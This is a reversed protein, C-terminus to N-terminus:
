MFLKARFQLFYEIVASLVGLRLKDADRRHARCFRAPLLRMFYKAAIESIQEFDNAIEKRM